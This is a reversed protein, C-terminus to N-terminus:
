YKFMNTYFIEDAVKKINLTYIVQVQLKLTINKRILIERTICRGGM